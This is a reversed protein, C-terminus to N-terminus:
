LALLIIGGITLTLTVLKVVLRKEKFYVAGSGLAWLESLARKGATAVSPPLYLYAFSLTANAVAASLLQAREATDFLRALPREGRLRAMASFYMLTAALVIGQEMEVSNFRSIDYKYLSITTVANLATFLVLGAGTRQIGHNSFLFVLGAIVFVIGTIQYASMTYGLAVDVGLLLPITLIRLFAYTSREATAVARLTIHAQFIELIVRPILTPLSAADFVFGGPFNPAFFHAPILLGLAGLTALGALTGAFGITYLRAPARRITLKSISDGLEEALTGVGVLLTGLM